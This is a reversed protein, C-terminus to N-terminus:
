SRAGVPASSSWERMAQEGPRDVHVKDDVSKVWSTPIWHHQGQNDRTLKIMEGEVKDVTGFQGNNSCVIPMHEKINQTNM